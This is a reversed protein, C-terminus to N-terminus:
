KESDLFSLGDLLATLRKFAAQQTMRPEPNGPYVGPNTGHVILDIAYCRGHAVGRYAHRLLFHSMGAARTDRRKFDVGDIRINSTAGTHDDGPLACAKTSKGAQNSAGLRLEGTLLKNSAPLTLTLLGRGPVDRKADPNWRADMFYDPAFGRSARLSNPYQMAVGYANSVFRATEPQQQKPLQVCAALLLAGVCILPISLRRTM